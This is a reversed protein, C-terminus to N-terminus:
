VEMFGLNSTGFVGLNPLILDLNAESVGFWRALTASYQDVSIDPIWRGDTTDNDQNIRYSHTTGYIDGGNVAGGMVLQTSAWGHDTGDGNHTFTRGFESATFVTVQDQLGLEVMANNFAVMAEPVPSMVQNYQDLDSQHTDFGGSRTYFTQRCVDLSGRAAILRAVTRLQRGLNSGPFTTSLNTAPSSLLDTILNNTRISRAMLDGYQRAHLNGHAVEYIAELARSRVAATDGSGNRVYGTVDETGSPSMDFSSVLQGSQFLNAGALSIAMSLDSDGNMSNVLDAMRGGWGTKEALTNASTMWLRQQDLHSFLQPPLDDFVIDDFEDVIANRTTPLSLTGVNAVMALDGSTFLDRLGPLAPNVGFSRGLADPSGPNIPLLGAPEGANPIALFQRVDKYRAYDVANTPAVMSDADHGGQLFICVLAKYGSPSSDAAAAQMARLNFVTNLIGGTGMATCASAGLFSRRTLLHPANM